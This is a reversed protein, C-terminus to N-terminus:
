ARVWGVAFREQVLLLALVLLIMAIQALSWVEAIM